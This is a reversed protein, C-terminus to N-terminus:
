RELKIRKQEKWAKWFNKSENNKKETSIVIGIYGIYILYFPILFIMVLCFLLSPDQKNYNYEFWFKLFKIINPM